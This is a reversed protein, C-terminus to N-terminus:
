LVGWFARVADLSVIWRGGADLGRSVDLRLVDFGFLLSAGISRRVAGDLTAATAHPALTARSASRGFAGLGIAPFPIPLQLEVRQSVGQRALLSHGQYGPVSMPGGLYVLEQPPRVGNRWAGAAVTRALMAGAGLPRGVELVGSLRSVSGTDFGTWRAEGEGRMELSM